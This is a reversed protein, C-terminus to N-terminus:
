IASISAPESIRNLEQKILKALEEKDSSIRSMMRQYGIYTPNSGNTPIYGIGEKWSNDIEYFTSIINEYASKGEFIVIKPKLINILEITFEGSKKFFESYKGIANLCEKIEKESNTAIYFLNTKVCKNDLKEIIEDDSLGVLKFLKVTEEALPYRYGEDFVDLYSIRDDSDPLIKIRDKKLGNGKGPNIGIFMIEPEFILKSDFAYYGFCLETATENKLIEQNLNELYSQVKEAWKNIAITQNETSM